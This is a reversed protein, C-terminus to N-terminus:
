SHGIVIRHSNTNNGENTEAVVTDADAKAIVFYTGSPTGSPIPVNVSGKNSGGPQLAPVSRFGLAMDGADLIADTSLYYRTTSPGAPGAGSNATADAVKVTQGARGKSPVNVSSVVLDPLSAPTPTLTPGATPTRTPTATNSATPTRTRTVTPTPTPTGGAPPLAYATLHASEDTIYLTANVVIPSEWHNGGVHTTDSWLVAGTLPNLARIIGNGAFYLVNNAM